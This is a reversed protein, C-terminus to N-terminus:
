WTLTVWFYVYKVQKTAYLEALINYSIIRFRVAAAIGAVAGPIALLRRKPPPAPASLVPDTYVVIPGALVSDDSVAMATVEIKLRCGVEDSTPVYEKETCISTWEDESTNLPIQSSGVEKTEETLNDANENLSGISLKATREPCTHKLSHSNWATKFCSTINVFNWNRNSLQFSFYNKCVESFL